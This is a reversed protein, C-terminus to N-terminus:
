LDPFRYRVDEGTIADTIHTVRLIILEAHSSTFINLDEIVERLYPGTGGQWGIFPLKTDNAHGLIWKDRHRYSTTLKVDIL